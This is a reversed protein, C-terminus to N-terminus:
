KIVHSSVKRIKRSCIDYKGKFNLLWTDSAVFQNFSMSRAQQHSWRRLDIEHVPHLLDRAHEFTEYVFEDISDIKQRKTGEEELCKRFRAMYYQYPIRRFHHKVNKWTHKRKGTKSNIADYFELARKMYSLSFDEFLKPETDEEDYDVDEQCGDPDVECGDLESDPMVYDLTTEHEHTYSDSTLISELIEFLHTAIEDEHMVTRSSYTSLQHPTKDMLRHVIRNAVDM